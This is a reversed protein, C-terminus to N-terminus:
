SNVEFNSSMPSHHNCPLFKSRTQYNNKLVTKFFLKQFNNKSTKYFMLNNPFRFHKLGIKLIKLHTKFDIKIHLAKIKIM